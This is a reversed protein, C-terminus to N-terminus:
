NFSGGMGQRLTSDMQAVADTIAQSLVNWAAFIVVVMMALVIIYEFAFAGKRKEILQNKGAVIKSLIFSGAKICLNDIIDISNSM